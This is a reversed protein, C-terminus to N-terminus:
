RRETVARAWVSGAHWLWEVPGHAFVALWARSVVIQIVFFGVGFVFQYAPTMAGLGIGFGYGFLLTSWFATQVLHNTFPMQGVPALWRLGRGYALVLALVGLALLPGAVAQATQGLTYAYSARTTYEDHGLLAAIGALLLGLPLGLVIQRLFFGTHHRPAVLPGAVVLWYGILLAGMQPPIWYHAYRAADILQDWRHALHDAYDGHALLEMEAAMERHIEARRNEWWRLYSAGKADLHIAWYWEFVLPLAILAIALPLLYHSPLVRILYLAVVGVLAFALLLSHPSVLVWQALGVVALACLPLLLEPFPVRTREYALGLWAGLALCLFFDAHGRALVEILWFSILDACGSEQEGPVTWMYSSYVYVELTALLWLLLGISWLIAAPGHFATRNPM